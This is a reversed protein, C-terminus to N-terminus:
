PTIDAIILSINDPAGARIATNILEGVLAAPETLDCCLQALAADPIADTLGDSCLILREPRLIELTTAHSDVSVAQPSGGLCQNVVNSMSGGPRDIHALQGIYGDRIRLISCDGVNFLMLADKGVVFGAITAGMHAYGETASGAERVRDSVSQIGANLDVPRPSTAIRLDTLLKSVMWSALDGGPHGGMGDIVAVISPERLSRTMRAGSASTSWGDIHLCDQNQERVVGVHTGAAVEVAVM